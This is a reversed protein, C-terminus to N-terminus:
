RSGRLHREEQQDLSESRACRWGGRCHDLSGREVCDTIEESTEEMSKEAPIKAEKALGAVTICWPRRLALSNAALFLLNRKAQAENTKSHCRSQLTSLPGPLDKAKALYAFPHPVTQM